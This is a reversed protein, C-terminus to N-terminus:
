DNRLYIHCLSAVKSECFLASESYLQAGSPGKKEVERILLFRSKKEKCTAVSKKNEGEKSVGRSWADYVDLVCVM